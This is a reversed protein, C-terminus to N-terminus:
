RLAEAAEELRDDGWFVQGRVVVSPVGRVGLDYAERGFEAIEYRNCVFPDLAAPFPRNDPIVKCHPDNLSQFTPEAPTTRYPVPLAAVHCRVAGRIERLMPLMTEPGRSCNLGVVDAGAAELRQCLETVSGGEREAAIALDGTGCCADLVRFGPQVVEEVALRRWSRDLGATMVRNMVDYVPAIRDFMGRVAEPQLTGSEHTM